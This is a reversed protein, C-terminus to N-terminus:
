AWLLTSVILLGFMLFLLFSRVTANYAYITARLKKVMTTSM